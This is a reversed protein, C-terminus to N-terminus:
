REVATGPWMARQEIGQAMCGDVESMTSPSVHLGAGVGGDLRGDTPLPPMRMLLCEDAPLPHMRVLRLQSAVPTEWWTPQPRRCRLTEPTTSKLKLHKMQINCFYIYSTEYTAIVVYV